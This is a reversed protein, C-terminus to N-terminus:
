AFCKRYTSSQQLLPLRDARITTLLREAEARAACSVMRSIKGARVAEELEDADLLLPRAQPLVLIDLYLDDYWLRGQADIGYGDCIDIYWLVINDDADCITTLAYGSGKPFHQLWSYGNRGICVQINAQKLWIPERVEDLRLLAVHGKFATDDIYLFSFRKQIINQWSNRDAFHRTM